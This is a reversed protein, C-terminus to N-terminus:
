AGWFLWFMKEKSLTMGAKRQLGLSATNDEIVQGFAYMGRELALRIAAKLLAEGVGRRRYAPLVELMGISGEEHFGVFGAPAGDVFAGTVGREVAGRIYALGGFANEYHAEIWPAEEQTMLRLTGGFEPAEPPTQGLYASSYCVQRGHLGLWEAAQELYAAEHGVFLDCGEPVLAMLRRFAAENGASLMWAGCGSDHLLVGDEGATLADASGRRLIELLNVYLVPDRSLYARASEWETM